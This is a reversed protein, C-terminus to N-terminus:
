DRRKSNQRFYIYKRHRYNERKNRSESYARKAQNEIDRRKYEKEREKVYEAWKECDVSCGAHRKPCDTKTEPNYCPAKM